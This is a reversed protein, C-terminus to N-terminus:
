YQVHDHFIQMGQLTIKRIIHSSYDSVYVDGTEQNVAIGWPSNFLASLRDGDKYGSMGSGAYTSM